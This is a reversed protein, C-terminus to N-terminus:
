KNNKNYADVYMKAHSLNQWDNEANAFLNEFPADYEIASHGYGELYAKHVLDILEEKTMNREENTELPLARMTGECIAIFSYDASWGKSKLYELQARLHDACRERMRELGKAMAAEVTILLIKLAIEDRNM